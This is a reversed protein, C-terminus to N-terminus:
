GKTLDIIKVQKEARSVATYLLPRDFKDMIYCVKPYQSGQSKHVTIAYGYDAQVIYMRPLSGSRSMIFQAMDRDIESFREIIQSFATGDDPATKRIEEIDKLWEEKQIVTYNSQQIITPLNAMRRAQARELGQKFAIYSRAMERELLHEGNVKPMANKWKMIVTIQRGLNKPKSNYKKISDLFDRLTMTDGNFKQLPPINDFLLIKDDEVPYDKGKCLANNITECMKNTYTIIQWDDGSEIDALSRSYQIVEPAKESWQKIYFLVRQKSDTFDRLDNSLLAVENDSRLVKTLHCQSLDKLVKTGYGFTMKPLDLKLDKRLGALEKQSEKTSVEPLQCFDGLGIVTANTRQWWCSIYQPVMSLEDVILVDYDFAAPDRWSNSYVTEGTATVNVVKSEKTIKQITEILLNDRPFNYGVEGKDDYFVLGKEFLKKSVKSRLVATAKGTMAAVAVRKGATLLSCIEECIMETKGVGGQGSVVVNKGDRGLNVQENIYDVTAQQEKTFTIM